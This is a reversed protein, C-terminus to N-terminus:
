NGKTKAMIAKMTSYQLYALKVNLYVFYPWAIIFLFISMRRSWKTTGPTYMLADHAGQDQAFWLKGIALYFLVAILIYIKM